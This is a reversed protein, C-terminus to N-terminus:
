GVPSIVLAHTGRAKAPRYLLEGTAANYTYRGDSVVVKFGGPYQVSRPVSVVTAPGSASTRFELRYVRSSRDFVQDVPIGALRRAYPRAAAQLGRPNGDQDILSFDEENWITVDRVSYDWQASSTFGSEIARYEADVIEDRAGPPNVYWPAGFEGILLPMGLQGAKNRQISTVVQFLLYEPLIMVRFNNAISDYMHPAYVVRDAGLPELVSFYQDMPEVFAIADGDVQRLSAVVDEYLPKLYGNEFAGGANGLDGPAPENMIDYGLVYPNDKLRAAVQVFANRYHEKLESSQWFHTICRRLDSSFINSWGWFPGGFGNNNDPDVGAAEVAWRPAGDGHLWRSFIDQHMDVMVYIGRAAAGDILRKVKDLYVQDYVGKEPEIGEWFVTFRALNFGWEALHDWWITEEPQFPLHDAALKANGSVNVGRFCAIRGHADYVQGDRVEFRPAAPVPAPAPAALAGACPALAMVAVLVALVPALTKSRPYRVAAMM